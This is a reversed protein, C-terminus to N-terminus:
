DPYYDIQTPSRRRRISQPLPASSRRLEFREVEEPTVRWQPRGSLNTAVNVARLEGRDIFARVKDPGIKLRRALDAVSYGISQLIDAM